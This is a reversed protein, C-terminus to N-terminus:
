EHSSVLLSEGKRDLYCVDIMGVSQDSSIKIRLKYKFMWRLRKSWLGENLYAKVYPSVKLNVFKYGKEALM